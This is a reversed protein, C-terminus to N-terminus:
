EQGVEAFGLIKERSQFIFVISPSHSYSSTQSLICDMLLGLWSYDWTDARFVLTETNLAASFVEKDSSRKLEM